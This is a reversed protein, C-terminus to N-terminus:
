MTPIMGIVVPAMHAEDIFTILINSRRRCVVNEMQKEIVEEFNIMEEYNRFTVEAKRESKSDPLFKHYWGDEKDEKLEQNVLEIVSSKCEGVSKVECVYRGENRASLFKDSIIAEYNVEDYSTIIVMYIVSLYEDSSEMLM